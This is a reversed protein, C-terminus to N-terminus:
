PSLLPLLDAPARLEHKPRAARCATPDGYGWTAWIGTAGAARAALLDGPTDGVYWLDAPPVGLDGAIALIVDPAPKFAMDPSTGRFADLRDRLGFAELVLRTPEPRKTTACGLLLGEPLAEFLARVGPYLRSRDRCHDAYHARYAAAAAEVGQADLSPAALSFMETLPRGVLAGLAERDLVSPTSLLSLAAQLSAVIDDRSDVLTGDLDFVLAGLPRM